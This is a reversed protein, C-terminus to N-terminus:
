MPFRPRRRWIGFRIWRTTKIERIRRKFDEVFGGKPAEGEAAPQETQPEDPVIVTPEDPVIEFPEDPVFKDKPEDPVIPQGNINDNIEKENKSM